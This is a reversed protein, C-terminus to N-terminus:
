CVSLSSIADRNAAGHPGVLLCTCAPINCSFVISMATSRGTVM